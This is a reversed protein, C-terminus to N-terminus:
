THTFNWSEIESLELSILPDWIKRQPTFNESLSTWWKPTLTWASKPKVSSPRDYHTVAAIKSTFNRQLTIRWRINFETESIGIQTKKNIKKQPSFDVLKRPHILNCGYRINHSLIVPIWETVELIVNRIFFFLTCRYFMIAKGRSVYLVAMILTALDIEPSLNAAPLLILSNVACACINHDCFDGFITDRARFSREKILFHTRLIWIHRWIKFRLYYDCDMSKKDISQPLLITSVARACHFIALISSLLTSRCFKRRWM